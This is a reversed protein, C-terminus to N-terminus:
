AEEIDVDNAVLNVMWWLRTVDEVTVVEIVISVLADSSRIYFLPHDEKVPVHICSKQPQGQKSYSRRAQVLM